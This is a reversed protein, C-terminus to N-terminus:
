DPIPPEIVDWITRGQGTPVASCESPTAVTVKATPAVTVGDAEAIILVVLQQRRHAKLLQFVRSIAADVASRTQAERRQASQRCTIHDRVAYPPRENPPGAIGAFVLHLNTVAYRWSASARKISADRLM